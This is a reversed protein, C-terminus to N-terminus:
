EIGIVEELPPFLAVGAGFVIIGVALLTLGTQSRIPVSLATIVVIAVGLWALARGVVTRDVM